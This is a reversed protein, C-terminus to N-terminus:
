EVVKEMVLEMVKGNGKWNGREEKGKWNGREEETKLQEQVKWTDVCTFEIVKEMVKWNGM